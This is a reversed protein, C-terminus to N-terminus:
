YRYKKRMAILFTLTVALSLLEAAVTAYWVGDLAFILPLILVTLVQFVLTRLFSIVASVAGNNLATFFSSGFINFGAFLYGFSFIIFGRTTMDCLAKDYGVFVLSLPRALLLASILMALSTIAIINVSKKRLNQLEDTNGAGFHYSVIPASGMVFGIFIAIFIFGVYMITGYAAVGDEGAYHMLQLNYLMNVVSMAINSMLESSGNVSAAILMRPYLHTKGLHLTSSNKSSFYVLPIVGGVIQSTATALAAGVLGLPIVAVLLADLLMNTVGAGVIVLLGLKPREATIFFSQFTNQLMFFPLGILVFRSYVVCDELMEGSAGLLAAIPRVFIMGLIALLSGAVITVYIITSFYENARKSDGLGFTKAVIACGGTGLMFGVAGLMVLLPMILNVAAFATKGVFNSVFLGDVVGYISTFIMMIISPIVFKILRKYGFHDSLQIIEKNKM